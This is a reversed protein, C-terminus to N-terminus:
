ELGLMAPSYIKVEDIDKHKAHNKNEKKDNEEKLENLFKIEEKLTNSLERTALKNLLMRGTQYKESQEDSFFFLNKAYAFQNAPNPDKYYDNKLKARM